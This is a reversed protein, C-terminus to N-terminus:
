AVAAPRSRTHAADLAGQAARLASAFAVESLQGPAAVMDGALFLGDGREVAPRDRWTTGPLDLAGSMSRLVSRRRWVERSRWDRYGADLLEEIRRVADDVAEDRRLGVQAQLLSFGAPALSPDPATFREVWGPADADSVVFPDGRRARLGVDLLAVTTGEWRLTDDGLLRAAASLETAVILPPEPLTTVREGTHIEVGLQRAQAALREVLAGWGGRVYRAHPTTIAFVRVLRQWVFAASLRGPDADFSFVGALNALVTATTAGWQATAWTRFDDGVPATRRL